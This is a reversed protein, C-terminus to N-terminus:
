QSTVSTTPSVEVRTSLEDRSMLAMIEKLRLVAM